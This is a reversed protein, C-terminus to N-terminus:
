RHIFNAKYLALIHWAREITDVRTTHYFCNSGFSHAIAHEFDKACPESRSFCYYHISALLFVGYLEVVHDVLFPETVNTIFTTKCRRLAPGAPACCGALLDRQYALHTKHM